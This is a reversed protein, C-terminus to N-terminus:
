GQLQNPHLREAHARVDDPPPPLELRSPKRLVYRVIGELFNDASVTRERVEELLETALGTSQAQVLERVEPNEALYDLSEDVTNHVAIDVLNRSISGEFRGIEILRNVEQQGRQTLREVRTSIINPFFKPRRTSEHVPLRDTVKQQYSNLRRAARAVKQQMVFVFGVVAHRTDEFQQSYQYHQLPVDLEEPQESQPQTGQSPPMGDVPFNIGQSRLRIVDWTLLRDMLLDMGYLVGGVVLRTFSVDPKFDIREATTIEQKKEGPPPSDFPFQKETSMM